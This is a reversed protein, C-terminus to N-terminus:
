EPSTKLIKYGYKGGIIVFASTTDRGTLLHLSPLIQRSILYRAVCITFQSIDGVMMVVLYLGWTYGCSKQTNCRHFTSCVFFWFMQLALGLNFSTFKNKSVSVICEALSLCKRLKRIPVSTSDNASEFASDDRLWCIFINLSSPLKAGSNSISLEEPAPYEDDLFTIDSIQRRLIGAAAHLMQSEYCIHAVHSLDHVTASHMNAKIRTVAGIAEPTSIASTYILNSVGQGQQPPITIL